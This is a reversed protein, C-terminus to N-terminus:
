SLHEKNREAYRSFFLVYLTKVAESHKQSGCVAVIKELAFFLTGAIYSDQKYLQMLTMVEGDHELQKTIREIATELAAQVQASIAVETGKKSGLLARAADIADAEMIDRVNRIGKAQSGSPQMYDFPPLGAGRTNESLRAYSMQVGDLRVEWFTEQKEASAVIIVGMTHVGLQQMAQMAAEAANETEIPYEAQHWSSIASHWLTARYKTM